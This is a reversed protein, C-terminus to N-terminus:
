HGFRGAHALLGRKHRFLGSNGQYNGRGRGAHQRGCLYEEGCNARLATQDLAELCHRCGLQIGTGVLNRKTLM